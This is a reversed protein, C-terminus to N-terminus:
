GNKVRGYSGGGGEEFELRRERALRIHHAIGEGALEAIGDLPARHLIEMETGFRGLLRDLTKPGLKPIFELPVQYVYPPRHEPHRSTRDSIRDIRDMVGQIVKISGCFPCGSGIGSLLKDCNLCRTRHYKGLKPNLGYNAAVRRGEKRALAKKLEMFDPNKVALENYERGIKPLSHADSNTVFSFPELESIRDAMESDASLGLEVASLRDLNLLDAMRDVASGYVSKFPTFVHAPILLGNCEEVKEELERLDGHFRQTSLQMNKVYRALWSSFSRIVDLSPFYALLHAAGKGPGKVEVEVGPIVTTAGYRFGGGKLETYRGRDLNRAIEEQVPPSHADIIGIMDIGKRHSAERVIQDFTLNRAGTIKVPLGSETRGIHIHLDAFVRKLTM